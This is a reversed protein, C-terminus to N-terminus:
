QVVRARYFRTKPRNTNSDSIQAQGTINTLGGLLAWSLCNTSAEVLLKQGADGTINLQVPGNTSLASIRLAPQRIMRLNVVSSYASDGAANTARVRYYYTAGVSLGTDLRNTVNAGTVAIQTFNIGNTSREIKYGTENTTNNNWILLLETNLLQSAKLGAPSAPVTAPRNGKLMTFDDFVVGNTGLFLADLRNSNIDLILSGLVDLSLCMAPHNLRGAEIHGSSGAVAYVAGQNATIGAPKQYAGTGDVRGDGGDKKLDESFSTSLGYHGNILFSREYSHSHGCLVLDVGGAELIPLANTRMEVLEFEADSDHSGKSYPPHHWFAILWPQATSALDHRLWTMMPGNTSTDSTMSDLCIFHINAYDFAYYKETGSPIGGSEGQTPLSFMDLYPFNTATYSFATDHNGIAPWLFTNRLVSPYMDFVALQYEADKGTIYANDGLMLVLDAPKHSAFSLYSDRVSRAEANATGSDGLVWLRTPKSAGTPPSTVFFLNTDSSLPETTTGVSYFYKTGPALGTISVIHETTILPNDAALALNSTGFQVRSDTPVDTRWRVLAGNTTGSQLYPGRLVLPKLSAELELDFSIDSSDPNAQHIEVALVNQGAVLNSAAVANTYFFSEEPPGVVSAAFTHYNINTDPMNSRFVEKGNLYVVGGDDRLLAVLLGSYIGVNTVQFTHRFYYTIFKNTDTPGYSLVTKEDWDGYGLQAPGSPWGSDNFGPQRWVTGQDTGNDLYKWVSGTAVLTDLASATLAGWLVLALVPFAACLGLPGSQM